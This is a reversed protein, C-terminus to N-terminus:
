GEHSEASKSTLWTSMLGQVSFLVKQGADIELIQSWKTGLEQRVSDRKWARGGVTGDPAGPGAWKQCQPPTAELSLLTPSITVGM